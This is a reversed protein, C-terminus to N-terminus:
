EIAAAALTRQTEPLALLADLIKALETENDITPPNDAHVINPDRGFEYKYGTTISPDAHHYEVTVPWEAPPSVVTVLPRALEGKGM